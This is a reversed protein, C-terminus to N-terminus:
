QRHVYLSNGIAKCLTTYSDQSQQSCSTCPIIHSAVLTAPAGVQLAQLQARLGEAKNTAQQMATDVDDVALSGELM